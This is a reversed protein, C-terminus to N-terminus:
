KRAGLGLNIPGHDTGRPRDLPWVEPLFGADRLCRCLHAQDFAARHWNPEPGYTFIRGNVWLMPDGDPNRRRWGDQPEGKLYGEVILGFDPVWIEVMGGVKLIRRVEVLVDVTKFWPVHELVHSMYVLDFAGDEFPLRKALDAVVDVEPGPVIDMLEWDPGLKTQSGIELKRM